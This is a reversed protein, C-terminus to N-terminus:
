IKEIDMPVHPDKDPIPMFVDFGRKGSGDIDLEYDFTPVPPRKCDAGGEILDTGWLPKKIADKIEVFEGKNGPVAGKVYVLNRGRDIKLVRLNQITVRDTGMRGAMKKGKFVRGPDQCQGTSGLARHSKSVGHTAPMGSFNHRKMAGQFGKGKSIGAIDVNQGPVFHRAHIQTGPEPTVDGPGGIRFERTIVPPLKLGLKNYFGLQPKKVRKLKKEGAGLVVANYGHKEKSKVELVINEDLFLVTCAHREGWEDWVPMMGLKIGLAGCRKDSLKWKADADELFDEENYSVMLPRKRTGPIWDKYLKAEKEAEMLAIQENLITRAEKETMGSSFILDSPETSKSTQDENEMTPLSKSYSRIMTSNKSIATNQFNNSTTAVSSISASRLALNQVQVYQPESHSLSATLYSAHYRNLGARALKSTRTIM